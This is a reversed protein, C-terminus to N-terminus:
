FVACKKNECYEFTLRNKYNQAFYCRLLNGVIQCIYQEDCRIHTEVSGQRLLILKVIPVPKIEVFGKQERARRQVGAHVGM